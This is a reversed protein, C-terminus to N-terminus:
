EKVIKSFYYHNLILFSIFLPVALSLIFSFIIYEYHFDIIVGIFSLKWILYNNLIFVLIFYICIGLIMSFLIMFFLELYKLTIIKNKSYGINLLLNMFDKDNVLQKQMYKLVIFCAVFVSMVIIINIVIKITNIVDYNLESKTYSNYGLSLLYEQIENVNETKDAYVMPLYQIDPTSSDAIKKFTKKSLFCENMQTSTLTNDFFGVIKFDEYYENTVEFKEDVVGYSYYKIRIVKNLFDKPNLKKNEEIEIFSEEFTNPYFNLPCIIKNQSDNTLNDGVLVNPAIGEAGNLYVIKGDLGYEFFSDTEFSLETYNSPMVYLIHEKEEIKKMEDSSILDDIIITRYHINQLLRDEIYNDFNNKLELSLLVLLFSFLFVLFLFINKKNRLGRKFFLAELM